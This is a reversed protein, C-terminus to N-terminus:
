THGGPQPIDGVRKISFDGRSSESLEADEFTVFLNAVNVVIRSPDSVPVWIDTADVPPIELQFHSPLFMQNNLHDILGRYEAPELTGLYSKREV